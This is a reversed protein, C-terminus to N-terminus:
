RSSQLFIERAKMSHNGTSSLIKLFRDSADKLDEDKQKNNKVFIFNEAGINYDNKGANVAKMHACAIEIEKKREGTDSTKRIEEFIVKGENGRDKGIGKFISIADDKAMAREVPNTISFIQNFIQKLSYSYGTKNGAVDLLSLFEDSVEKLTQGHETWSRVFRLNIMGTAPDEAANVQECAVDITMNKEEGDSINKIQDFIERGEREKGHGLKKFIDVADNKALIRENRDNISGIHRYINIIESQFEDGSLNEIELFDDSAEKLSQDPNKCSQVFKFNAMGKIPDSSAKIHAIAM